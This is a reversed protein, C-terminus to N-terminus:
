VVSKRDIDKYKIVMSFACQNIGYKKEIDLIEKGSIKFDISASKGPRLHTRGIQMKKDCKSLDFLQGCAFVVSIIEVPKLSRNELNANYTFVTDPLSDPTCTTRADVLQLRVAYEYQQYTSARPFSFLSVFLSIIAIGISIIATWNKIIFQYVEIFNDMVM